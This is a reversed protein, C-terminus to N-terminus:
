HSAKPGALRAREEPTNAGRLRLRVAEDCPLAVLGAREVLRRLPWGPEADPPLAELAVVMPVPLGEYFAGPEPAALLPALDDATVTPADVALVLARALGHAVLARAGGLVGAVPGAGPEPDEVHELGFARGATLVRAAGVAAALAAVRDVARQGDWDLSAKDAGMRRSAGGTLIIAGFPTM